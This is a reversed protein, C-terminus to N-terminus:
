YRIFKEVLEMRTPGMRVAMHLPTYGYSNEVHVNAGHSLLLEVTHRLNEAGFLRESQHDVALHLATEGPFMRTFFNIPENVHVGRQLFRRVAEVNHVMCAAHFHSIGQSNVPNVTFDLHFKM